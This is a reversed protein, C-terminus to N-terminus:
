LDPIDGTAAHLDRPQQATCDGCTTVDLLCQPTNDCIGAAGVVLTHKLIQIDCKVTFM